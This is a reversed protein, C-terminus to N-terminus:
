NKELIESLKSHLEEGRLNKGIIKGNPDILFNQPISEIGYAVAVENSWFKLDSVQTWNLKDDKIAQLWPEKAKDLSIGLVTFNKDKFKEFASVVNPNEMRCPKCWSAWFDLLVYKGRFSALSVPKGNVDAQTFELAQSGITGISLKSLQQQLIKAYFGKKVSEDLAELQLSVKQPDGVVEHTVLLLFPSVPSNKRAAVFADISSKIKDIQGSYVAMMSDNGPVAGSNIKQSTESLDQFLPNFTNQFAVFDNHTASGTVKIEPLNESNGSISVKDNGMFLAMRKKAGDMNLYYLNPEQVSGKLVFSGNKVTAKSLTDTPQNVDSLSVTSNEALGSLKANITFQQSPQQASLIAPVLGIALFLKKM